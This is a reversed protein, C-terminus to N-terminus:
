GSTSDAGEEFRAVELFGQVRRRRDTVIGDLLLGGALDVGLCPGVAARFLAILPQVM